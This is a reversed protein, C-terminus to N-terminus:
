SKERIFSDSVTRKLKGQDALTKLEQDYTAGIHTMFACFEAFEIKENHDVDMAAFMAEFDREPMDGGIFTKLEEKSLVGDQDADMRKFEDELAAATLKSTTKSYEITEAVRKAFQHKYREAQQNLQYHHFFILGAAILLLCLIVMGAIFGGKVQAEEQYPTVSTVPDFKAMQEETVCNSTDVCNGNEILPLRDSELVNNDVYADQLLTKFEEETVHHLVFTYTEALPEDSYPPIDSFVFYQGTGSMITKEENTFTLTESFLFDENKVTHYFTVNNIPAVKGGTAGSYEGNAHVLNAIGDKEYSAVGFKEAHTVYGNIGCVGEGIVNAAEDPVPLSCFLDSAKDYVYYQSESMRTQDVTRNIFLGIKYSPYPLYNPVVKSAFMPGLPIGEADNVSMTGVWYGEADNWSPANAKLNPSVNPNYRKDGSCPQYIGGGCKTTQTNPPEEKPAPKQFTVDSPLVGVDALKVQPGQRCRHIVTRGLLPQPPRSTSGKEDAMTDHYCKKILVGNSDYEKAVYCHILKELRKLQSDSILMPTDLLNWNVIETCGPTTLGGKYTFVGFDPETPLEYINPAVGAPFSPQTGDALWTGAGVADCQTVQQVLETGALNRLHRSGKGACEEDIKQATAEWGQLFLEFVPHANPGVDIMTGFVAFSEKTEEQHVVHLEAPFFGDDGLGNIQHESYTHIHYQLANFANESHPIDMQGFTCMSGEKPAVKVGNNSITFDLEDWTCDGGRFDYMSMDTDCKFRVSESISVPSQGYGTAGKMGGCQNGDMALYEWRSPGFGGEEYYTFFTGGGAGEVAWKGVLASLLTSSFLLRM